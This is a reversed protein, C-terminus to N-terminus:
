DRRPYLDRTLAQIRKQYPISGLAHDTWKTPLDSRPQGKWHPVPVDAQDLAYFLAAVRGNNKFNKPSSMLDRVIQRRVNTPELEEPDSMRAFEIAPFFVESAEQLFQEVKEDTGYNHSTFLLNPSLPNGLDLVDRMKFLELLESTPLRRDEHEYFYRYVGYFASGFHFGSIGLVSFATAPKIPHRLQRRALGENLAHLFEFYRAELM